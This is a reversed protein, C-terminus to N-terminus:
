RQRQTVTRVVQRTAVFGETVITSELRLEQLWGDNYRVLAQGKTEVLMKIEVVAGQMPVKIIPTGKGSIGIKVFNTKPNYDILTYTLPVEGNSVRGGAQEFLDEGSQSMDLTGKWSDGPKVAKSPFVVGMFGVMLSQSGAQFGMPNLGVGNGLLYLDSGRGTRDFSGQLTSGEINEATKKIFNDAENAEISTGQVGAKVNQTHVTVLANTETAKQVGVVQEANLFSKQEFLENPKDGQTFTSISNTLVYTERRGDTFALRIDIPEVPPPKAAEVIPDVKVDTNSAAGTSDIPQGTDKPSPVSVLKGSGAGGSCGVLVIAVCLFSFSRNVQGM